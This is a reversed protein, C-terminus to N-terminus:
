DEGDTGDTVEENLDVILMGDQVKPHFSLLADKDLQMFSTFSKAGIVYSNAMQQKRVPYAAKEGNRAPRIAFARRQQDFRFVVAKPEGLAQYAAVNMGMNGKKQITVRPVRQDPRARRETFDQWEYEPM